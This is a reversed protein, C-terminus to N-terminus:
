WDSDALRRSLLAQKTSRSAKIPAVMDVACVKFVLPVNSPVILSAEPPSDGADFDAQPLGFCILSTGDSSIVLTEEPGGVKRDAGILNADLISPKCGVQMGSNIQVHACGYVQVDDKRWSADRGLHRDGRM